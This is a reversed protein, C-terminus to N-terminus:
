STKKTKNDEPEEEAEEFNLDTEIIEYDDSDNISGKLLKQLQKEQGLVLKQIQYLKKNTIDVFDDTDNLGASKSISSLVSITFAMTSNDLKIRIDNLMAQMLSIVDRLDVYTRSDHMVDVRYTVKTNRKM